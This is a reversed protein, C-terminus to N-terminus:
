MLRMAFFIESLSQRKRERDDGGVTGTSRKLPAIPM